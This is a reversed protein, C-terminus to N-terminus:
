EFHTKLLVIITQKNNTHTIDMTVNEIELKTNKIM